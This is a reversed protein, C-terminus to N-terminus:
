RKAKSWLDATTSVIELQDLKNELATRMELYTQSLKTRLTKRCMIQVSSPTGMRVLNIFSPSDVISLPQINEIVFRLIAADLIKQNIGISGSGWRELVQQKKKIPNELINENCRKNNTAALEAKAKEIDKM